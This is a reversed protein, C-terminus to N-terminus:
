CLYPPNLPVEEPSTELGTAPDFSIAQPVAPMFYQAMSYHYLILFKKLQQSTKILHDAAFGLSRPVNM